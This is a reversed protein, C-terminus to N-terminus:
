FGSGTLNVPEMLRRRFFVRREVLSSSLQVEDHMLQPIVRDVSRM